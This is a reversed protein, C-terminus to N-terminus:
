GAYKAWPDEKPNIEVVARKDQLLPLIKAKVEADEGKRLGLIRIMGPQLYKIYQFGVDLERCCGVPCFSNTFDIELQQLKTQIESLCLNLNDYYVYANMKSKDHAYQLRQAATFSKFEFGPQRDTWDCALLTLPYHTKCCYSISINKVLALVTDSFLARGHVKDRPLSVGVFPALLNFERPLVFMNKAFYVKEVEERIQKCVRMIRLSPTAYKEWGKFRNFDINEDFSDPTYFVKGMVVLYEYVQVRLEAPLDLFQFPLKDRAITTTALAELSDLTSATVTDM